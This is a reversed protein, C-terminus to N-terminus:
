VMWGSSGATRQRWGGVAYRWAMADKVCGKCCPLNAKIFLPHGEGICLCDIIPRYTSQAGDRPCSPYPEKKNQYVTIPLRNM